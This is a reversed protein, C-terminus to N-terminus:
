SFVARVEIQCIRATNGKTICDFLCNEARCQMCAVCPQVNLKQVEVVDVEAGQTKAEDSMEAVMQAINGRKRPSANLILIKKTEMM